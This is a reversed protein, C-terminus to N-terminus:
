PWSSVATHVQDWFGIQSFTATASNRSIDASQKTGGVMESVKMESEQEVDFHQVDAAEGPIHFYLYVNPALKLRDGESLLVGGGGKRILSGNWYTGNSSLDDAFVLTEVDNETDEDYVVSYIRLHKKSIAPDNIIYSSFLNTAKTRCQQVQAWWKSRDRGIFFEKNAYIKREVL